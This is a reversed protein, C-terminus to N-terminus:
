FTKTIFVLIFYFTQYAEHNTAGALCKEYYCIQVIYLHALIEYRSLWNLHLSPQSRM